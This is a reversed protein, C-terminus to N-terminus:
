IWRVFHQQLVEDEHAQFEVADAEAPPVGQELLEERSVGPSGRSNFGVLETAVLSLTSSSSSSSSSSSPSTRPARQQGSGFSLTSSSL